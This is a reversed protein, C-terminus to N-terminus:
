PMVRDWERKSLLLFMCLFYFNESLLSFAAEAESNSSLLPCSRGGGDRAETSPARAHTLDEPPTSTFAIISLISVTRPLNRDSTCLGLSEARRRWNRVKEGRWSATPSSGVLVSHLCRSVRRSARIFPGTGEGGM